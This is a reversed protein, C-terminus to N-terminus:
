VFQYHFRLSAGKNDSKDLSCKQLSSVAKCETLESIVWISWILCKCLQKYAPPMADYGGHPFLIIEGMNM